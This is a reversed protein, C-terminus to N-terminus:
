SQPFANLAVRRSKCAMPNSHIKRLLIKRHSVHRFQKVTAAWLCLMSYTSDVFPHLPDYCEHKNYATSTKQFVNDKADLM